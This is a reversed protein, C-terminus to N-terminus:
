GPQDRARGIAQQRGLTVVDRDIRFDQFIELDLRALSEVEGGKRDLSVVRRVSGM